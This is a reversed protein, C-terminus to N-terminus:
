CNNAITDIGLFYGAAGAGASGLTSMKERWSTAGVLLKAAEKIGGLASIAGRIKTIKAVAFISSGLVWAIAAVCKAVDFWEPDVVIGYAYDADLHDVVQVLTNGRVEYHTPVNAGTADVAWPAPTVAIPDGNSNVAAVSGGDELVLRAVDGGILFAFEEPAASSAISVLARVGQATPQVSVQTAAKIGDRVTTLGDAEVHEVGWSPLGMVVSGIRTELEAHRTGVRIAENATVESGDVTEIARDILALNAGSPDGGEGPAADTGQMTLSLAATFAVPSLMLWLTRHM